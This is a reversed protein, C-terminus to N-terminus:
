FDWDLTSCTSYELEYTWWDVAEKKKGVDLKQM